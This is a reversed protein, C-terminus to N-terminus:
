YMPRFPTPRTYIELFPVLDRHRQQYNNNTMKLELWSGRRPEDEDSTTLSNKSELNIYWRYQARNEASGLILYYFLVDGFSFNYLLTSHIQSITEISPFYINFLSSAKSTNPRTPSTKPLPKLHNTIGSHNKRRISGKKKPNWPREKKKEGTVGPGSM